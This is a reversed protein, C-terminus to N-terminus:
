IEKNNEITSYSLIYDGEPFNTPIPKCAYGIESPYM